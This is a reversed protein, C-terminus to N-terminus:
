LIRKFAKEVTSSIGLPDVIVKFLIFLMNETGRIDDRDTRYDLGHYSRMRSTDGDITFFQMLYDLFGTIIKNHNDVAIADRNSVPAPQLVSRYNAPKIPSQYLM